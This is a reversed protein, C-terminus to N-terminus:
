MNDLHGGVVVVQDVNLIARHGNRAVHLDGLQTWGSANSTYDAITSVSEKGNYGGILAGEATTVSAYASIRFSSHLLVRAETIYVSIFYFYKM